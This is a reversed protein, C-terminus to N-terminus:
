VCDRPPSAAAGPVREGPRRKFPILFYTAPLGHEVRAYWAFPEWFDELWGAYVFPLSMAARWMAALRGLPIKRKVVDRIGGVTSRYLFGWMSHDFRHHRIAVFDIDHTLCAWFPRGAPVPPIELLPLGAGLIWDRLLAIHMDLAPVHAYQVPQGTSLLVRAEEFVDYGIRLVTTHGSLFRLGVIGCTSDLCVTGGRGGEFTLCEGYIPVRAGGCELSAGRGRTGAAIGYRADATTPESGFAVILSACSDPIEGTTTVLVDFRRGPEYFEWPTKFLEFFEEIIATQEASALIGIM